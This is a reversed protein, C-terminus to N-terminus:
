AAMRNNVRFGRVREGAAGRKPRCSSAQDASGSPAFQRVADRGSERSTRGTREAGSTWGERNQGGGGAGGTRHLRFRCSRDGAGCWRQFLQRRSPPRPNGPKLQVNLPITKDDFENM